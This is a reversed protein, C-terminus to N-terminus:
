VYGVVYCKFSTTSIHTCVFHIANIDPIVNNLKFVGGIICKSVHSVYSNCQGCMLYLSIIPFLYIYRKNQLKEKEKTLSKWNGLLNQQCLIRTLSSNEPKKGGSIRCVVLSKQVVFFFFDWYWVLELFILKKLFKSFM